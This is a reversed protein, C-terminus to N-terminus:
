INKTSALLTQISYDSVNERKGRLYDIIATRIQYSSELVKAYDVFNGISSRYGAVTKPTCFLDKEALLQEFPVRLSCSSEGCTHSRPLCIQM